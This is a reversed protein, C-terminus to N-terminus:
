LLWTLGVIQEQCKPRSCCGFGLRVHGMCTPDTNWLIARHFCPLFAFVHAATYRAKPQSSRRNADIAARRLHLRRHKTGAPCSPYAPSTIASAYCQPFAEQRTM